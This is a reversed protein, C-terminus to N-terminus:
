GIGVEHLHLTCGDSTEPALRFIVSKSVYATGTFDALASSNANVTITQQYDNWQQPSSVATVEKHAILTNWAGVAAGSMTIYDGVKIKSDPHNLTLVASAAKSAATVTGRAPHGYRYLFNDGKCIHFSGVGAQNATNCVTIHGAKKEDSCVVYVVGTQITKAGTVASTANASSLEGHDTVLSLPQSASM